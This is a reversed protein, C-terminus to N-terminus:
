KVYLITAFHNGRGELWQRMQEETYPVGAGKDATVSSDNALFVGDEYHYFVIWHGGPFTATDADPDSKGSADTGAGAVPIRQFRSDAGSSIVVVKGDELQARLADTTRIDGPVEEVAITDALKNALLWARARLALNNTSDGNFGAGEWVKVNDTYRKEHLLINVGVIFSTAGCNRGNGQVQHYEAGDVHSALLLAREADEAVQKAEAVKAEIEQKRAELQGKKESLAERERVLEGARDAYHREVRSYMEYRMVADHLTESGLLLELLGSGSREGKYLAVATEGLAEQTDEIAQQTEEIELGIAAIEGANQEQEALADEYGQVAAQYNHGLQELSAALASAPVAFLAAACMAVAISSAIAGVKLRFGVVLM